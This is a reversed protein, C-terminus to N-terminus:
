EATCLGLKERQQAMYQRHYASVLSKGPASKKVKSILTKEYELPRFTKRRDFCDDHGTLCTISWFVLHIEHTLQRVSMSINKASKPLTASGMQNLTVQQIGGLIAADCVGGQHMNENQQYCYPGRYMPREMRKTIEAHYMSLTSQVM